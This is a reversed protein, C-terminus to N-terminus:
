LNYKKVDVYQDIENKIKLIINDIENEKIYYVGARYSKIRYSNERVIDEMANTYDNTSKNSFTMEIRNNNEEVISVFYSLRFQWEQYYGVNSYDDIFFEREDRDNPKVRCVKTETNLEKYFNKLFMIFEFFKKSLRVANQEKNYENYELIM